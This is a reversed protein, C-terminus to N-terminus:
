YSVADNCLVSLLENLDCMVVRKGVGHYVKIYFVHCVMVSQNQWHIFTGTMCM